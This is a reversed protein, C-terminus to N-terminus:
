TSVSPNKRLRDTFALNAIRAGAGGTVVLKPLLETMIRAHKIWEYRPHLASLKV